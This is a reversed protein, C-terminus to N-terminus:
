ADLKPMKKVLVQMDLLPQTAPVLFVKITVEAVAERPSLPGFREISPPGAEPCGRPLGSARARFTHQARM